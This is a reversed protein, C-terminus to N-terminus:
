VPTGLTQQILTQTQAFVHARSFKSEVLHRAARGMAIRRDADRPPVLIGTDGDPVLDRCGPVDTTVIPRACAAAELLSMPLGERYSPLVGIHVHRWLEGIDGRKGLFTLAGGESWRAITDAPIARPNAPDTDGVVWIGIEGGRAKLKEGAAVLERVGKDELLRGVFMAVVPGTPEASPTFRRLDIGSGPILTIQDPRALGRKVLEDRDDANQVVAQSGNLGALGRMVATVLAKLLGADRGLVAGMGAFVRVVHPRGALLAAAETDVIPKMGVAFVIKPQRKRITRCLVRMVRLEGIPNLSGRDFAVPVLEFGAAEIAARHQNVRTAVLVRLGMDRAAEAMPRRHSWFYWDETVVFLV